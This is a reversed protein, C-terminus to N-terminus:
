ATTARKGPTPALLVKPHVIGDVRYLVRVGEDVCHLHVDTAREIIANWIFTNLTDSFSESSGESKANVLKGQSAAAM